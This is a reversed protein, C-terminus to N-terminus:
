TLLGSEVLYTGLPKFNGSISTLHPQQTDTPLKHKLNRLEDLMAMDKLPQNISHTQAYELLASSFDTFIEFVQEVIEYINDQFEVSIELNKIFAEQEESHMEHNTDVSFHHQSFYHYEEKSIEQLASAVQATAGLFIDAIAEIAELIVLKQIPHAQYTLRYLKYIVWRSCNNEPSWLYRLSNSFRLSYDIGLKELDELFWIWHTDDEYTHQNILDQVKDQTPIDRFVHTNLERFGMVFFSFCPAFALRQKPDIADNRLFKYFPLQSFTAKKKEILALVSKMKM